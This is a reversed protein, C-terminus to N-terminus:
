KSMIGNCDLTWLTKFIILKSWNAADNKIWVVFYVICMWMYTFKICWTSQNKKWSMLLLTRYVVNVTIQWIVKVCSENIIFLKIRPWGLIVCSGVVVVFSYIFWKRERERRNPREKRKSRRRKIWWTINRIGSTLISYLIICFVCVCM